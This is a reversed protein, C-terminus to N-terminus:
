LRGISFTLNLVPGDLDEDGLYPLYLGDVFRYGVGLGFRLYRTLNLMLDIEPEMIFFGDHGYYPFRYDNVSGGGVLLGASVSAFHRPSSMVGFELGGYGIDLWDSYYPHWEWYEAEHPSGYIAGGLFFLSNVTLGGRLGGFVRHDDGLDGFKVVPSLYWGVQPEPTQPTSQLIPRREIALANSSILAILFAILVKYM